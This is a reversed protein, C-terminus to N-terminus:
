LKKLLIQEIELPHLDFGIIIGKGDILLNKGTSGFQGEMIKDGEDFVNLWNFGRKNIVKNWDKKADALSKIVGTKSYDWSVALVVFGKDKFKSYLPKM